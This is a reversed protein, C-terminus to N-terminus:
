PTSTWRLPRFYNLPNLCHFLPNDTLTLLTVFSSVELFSQWKFYENGIVSKKKKKENCGVDSLLFSWSIQCHSLELFSFMESTAVTSRFLHTWPLSGELLSKWPAYQYVSLAFSFLFQQTPVWGRLHRSGHLKMGEKNLYLGATKTHLREVNIENM